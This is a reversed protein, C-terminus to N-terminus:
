RAAIAVLRHMQEVAEAIRPGARNVLDPDLSYVRGARVCPLSSLGAARKASAVAQAPTQGVMPIIVVADPRGAMAQELSCQGYGKMALANTGGARRVIDDPFTAAGAAWVPSLSYVVLLKPRRPLKKVQRDVAALRREIGAVLTAAKAEQWTVTGLQRIAATVQAITKPDIAFSAIKGRDLGQWVERPNGRSGAVFDPRLALIRELSPNTFGGIKPLKGVAPPYNCYQTVGVVRPGLGLAFLTETVEPAMSVIRQPPGPLRVPRGLADKVPAAAWLCAAWSLALTVTLLRQARAAM